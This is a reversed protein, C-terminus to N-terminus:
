VAKNGTRKENGDDEKGEKVTIVVDFGKRQAGSTLMVSWARALRDQNVEIKEVANPQQQLILM